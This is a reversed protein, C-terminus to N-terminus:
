DELANWTAPGVVGEAKLGHKTQFAIVAKKTNPGFAGDATIGLQKQLIKVASGKSGEKLIPMADFDEVVAAPPTMAKEPTVAVPTPTAAPEEDKHEVVIPDDPVEQTPIEAVSHSPALTAPADPSTAVVAEAHTKEFEIVAKCFKMPDYYGKGNHFGAMPQGKIHGAWIEWHLHKGTAFGTEGMKGIITGATIRQGKKVKISGKVMHFYTWTVKKGMVTSQVIVSHGASNPNDNPRVAIVKGDAWAELYTTTGGQWIDVGNHHKKTKKIPHVRWGFPSTVKWSKGPKGDVPWQSKAM